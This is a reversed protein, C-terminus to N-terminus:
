CFLGGDLGNPGPKETVPVTPVHQRRLNHFAHLRLTGARVDLQDFGLKRLPEPPRLARGLRGEAGIGSRSPLRLRRATRTTKRKPRNRFKAVVNCIGFGGEWGIESLATKRVM